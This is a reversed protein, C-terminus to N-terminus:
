SFIEENFVVIIVFFFGMGVVVGIFRVVFCLGCIGGAIRECVVRLKLLRKGLKFEFVCAVLVVFVKFVLRM